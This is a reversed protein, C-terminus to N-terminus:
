AGSHAEQSPTGAEWAARMGHSRARGGPAQSCPVWCRRDEERTQNCVELADDDGQGHQGGDGIQSDDEWCPISVEAEGVCCVLTHAM